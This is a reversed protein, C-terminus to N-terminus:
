ETKNAANALPDPWAAAAKARLYGDDVEDGRSAADDTGALQRLWLVEDEPMWAVIQAPKASEVKVINDVPSRRKVAM